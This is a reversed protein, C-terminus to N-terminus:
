ADKWAEEKIGKEQNIKRALVFLWDSLRNFYVLIKENIEEKQNLTVIEQEVQRSVTRALHFLAALKDGSPFIFKKLRPLEKRWSDIEKELKRTERLSFKKKQKAKALETGISFLEKQRERLAKEVQRDEAAFARILGFWSNLEDIAGIARFRLNNKPLCTKDALQSTGRDGKRTYVKM